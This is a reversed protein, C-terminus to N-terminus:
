SSYRWPKTMKKKAQQLQRAYQHIELPTTTKLKLAADITKKAEEDRGMKALIRSKTSLTNFNAQGIFPMSIAADAWKLGQELNTGSQLCYQAAADYGQYSFGPVTTLEHRLRTIYIENPNAVKITMPVALEEWQLEAVAEAPKRTPFEYTLYERYDHKHPKVNVRLADETDDYFFSGWANSNKSFIITSEDQGPLDHASRVPGCGPDQRRYQRREFCRVRHKQERRGALARAERQRLGFQNSRVPGLKGSIEGKRDKGNPGHVAPVRTNLPSGSPDLLSPSLPKRTIEM